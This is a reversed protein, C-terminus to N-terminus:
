VATSFYRQPGVLMATIQESNLGSRSVSPIATYLDCTEGGSHGRSVQKGTPYSSRARRSENKVAGGEFPILSRELDVLHPSETARKRDSPRSFRTPLDATSIQGLEYM